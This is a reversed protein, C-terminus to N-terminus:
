AVRDFKLAVQPVDQGDTAQIGVIEPQVLLGRRAAYLLVKNLEGTRQAIERAIDAHTIWGGAM